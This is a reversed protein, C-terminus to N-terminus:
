SSRGGGHGGTAAQASKNSGHGDTYTATVRLYRNVDAQVPTYTSTHTSAGVGDVSTWTTRDASRQWQWITGSAVGDPDDLEATMARGVQPQQSPLALTGAADVVISVAVDLTATNVNDSAQLTVDYVNNNDADIRNEHDPPGTFSLRGTDDITFHSSDPGAALSWTVPAREPDEADYDAVATTNEPHNVGTPGSITPPEDVDTVTITVTIEDFLNSPDTATVTVTHTDRAERDLASDTLLQGTSMDIAFAADGTVSYTLTDDDDAVVPSGVPRGRPGEAVSRMGTAAPFQPASNTIPAAQVPAASVKQATKNPGHGDRYSASVRLHEGVDDDTPTYARSTAGDITEWGGGESREWKWVVGPSPGDPDQLTARIETGAQPQTSSLSLTGAEEANVVTVTVTRQVTHTGDFAQVTVEYINDGNEHDPPGTFNLRGTDDITFHSSDPSAALSWTVPAREPDEADYDAVATTNEPHNVGTPGSITPPEDVDTVTITVTIEDFLNSPDTATVTVTHTDRAERDLASATLLQGTSMDITFAADGTVSYTLTDYNPDTATLTAIIASPGVNEPVDVTATGTEFAPPQQPTVRLIKDGSGGNSTSVYLAGDPGLMPTRLRGHTANLGRAVVESLLTGDTAFEFVRLTSDKLSAVALRGEWAAWEDGELFIAGSTALTSTGSSWKAEVADPFKVRDTMPVRENYGPVPDWGYNGGSVLLNIEDDVTSGHEVAWMQDTGPRLALGQVNRHGYSYVQSGASPNTPAGDGTSADVRLVKGGLSSQTQPNTGTAADGTGIWLYGQPGFRLRCGGHRGSSPLGDVLPDDARTATTYASDITWAIVQVQPGTHGQCTYFRRNTAFDPDVVIAMLGTEDSAFLDSLDATVTHVTGDTLRASLRGSRQTFLMTGDPTFGIGWPVTLGTVLEFVSLAPATERGDVPNGLVSEAAKDSGEDDGYTASARLYMGRDRTRPAYTESTATSITQWDAQDSSRAWQWSVSRVGRDPDSLRVRLVSGVRAGATSVSVTGDEDVNTVAVTVTIAHDVATSPNGEDDKADHVSVTVSYSSKAEHDLDGNTRLQGSSSVIEFLGADTGGLTYTLADSEPDTAAVPEEIDAGAATNEDVSRMGNETSPFQPAGNTSQAAASSPAGALCMLASVAAALLRRAPSLRKRANGRRATM